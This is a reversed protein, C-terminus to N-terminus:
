RVIPMAHYPVFRKEELKSDKWSQDLSTASLRQIILPYIKILQACKQLKEEIAVSEVLELIADM